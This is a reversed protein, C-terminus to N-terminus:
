RLTEITKSHSFCFRKGKVREDAVTKLSAAPPQMINYEKFRAASAYQKLNEM